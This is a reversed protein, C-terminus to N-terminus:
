SKEMKTITNYIFGDPLNLNEHCLVTIDSELSNTFSGEFHSVMFIQTFNSDKLLSSVSNFASERHLPDMRAGFEDLFLPWDDFKLFSLSVIRIALNIIEKQGSSCLNIDPVIEDKIKVPFKYSLEINDNEDPEVPTLQIPYSWIRSIIENVLNIFHNIFGTLGKAILGESPSLEKVAIKLLGALDTSEKLNNEIFAVNSKQIEIERIKKENSILKTNLDLIIEGIHFRQFSDLRDKFNEELLVKLKKIEDNSKDIFQYFSIRQKLNNAKTLQLGRKEYIDHFKLTLQEKTNLLSKVDLTKQNTLINKKEVLNKIHNELQEIELSKRLDLNFNFVANKLVEPSKRVLNDKDVLSWFIKFDENSYNFYKLTELGKLHRNEQEAESTIKKIKEEADSIKFNLTKLNERLLFLDNSDLGPIWRHRCSPCELEKKADPDELAKIKEILITKKEFCNKLFRNGTEITQNKKFLSDESYLLQEDRTLEELVFELNRQWEKFKLLIETSNKIVTKFILEEKLKNLELHKKYLETELENKDLDVTLEHQKIKKEVVDLERFLDDATAELFMINSNVVVLDNQLEPLSFSSLLSKNNKIKDRFGKSLKKIKELLESEQSLSERHPVRPNPCLENLERLKVKLNLIEENLFVEEDKSILRTRAEVLRGQDTKISGLVDRYSSLLRQFYAIAYSYDTDSIKTLLQKRENPSLRFFEIAGISLEHFEKTLGFYQLVLNSYVTTTGGPNLEEFMNEKKVKFSFINKAGTFDSLLEFFVGRHEIKIKKFGGRSYDDKSAPLPSLEKILSSKGSGSTGLLWHFKNEPTIKIYSIQNLFLRQFGKLELELIKM